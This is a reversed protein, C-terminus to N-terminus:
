KHPMALYKAVDLWHARMIRAKKKLQEILDPGILFTDEYRASKAHAVLEMGGNKLMSILENTNDFEDRMIENWPLIDPHGDWTAVKEPIRPEGALVEANRDRILQAHYFNHISRVESAWMRLALGVQGLWKGEPANELNELTRAARRASSLARRLGANNWDPTGKMRGGHFDIYDMRAENEHINFVHPLFYAEDEPALLEPKIVLPRTLHRMSVGCYFNSYGAFRPTVANKLTFAQHMNYFAEFVKERNQEGGWRGALKKLKELRDSLTSTPEAICDEAIDLLKSVTEPRDEYRGYMASAGISVTKIRPSHYREMSGIIALPDIIGLFPYNQNIMTGLGMLSPDRPNLYTNEPLKPLIVDEENQWFMGMWRLTIPGGGKKAGRHIALSIDRVRDGATRSRCHQPGNPGVYQSAAWCIGAGADNASTMVTQIEPVNRKVEAMMWEIMERTEEQDVCWSFAEKTSRRPHDVRPGRLHPYQLFFSEPLLHTERAQFSAELGLNRLIATKALMLKRNQEVWNAPIHPAVKPHPYFKWPAPILCAYDHWPSGGDPIEYWSKDALASVQVQVRGYAKMRAALEAYARFEKLDRGGRDSFMFIRETEAAQAQGAAGATLIFALILTMLFVFMRRTREQNFFM